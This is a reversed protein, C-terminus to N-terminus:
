VIAEGDNSVVKTAADEILKGQDRVQGRSFRSRRDISAQLPLQEDVGLATGSGLGQGCAREHKTRSGGSHGRGSTNPRM